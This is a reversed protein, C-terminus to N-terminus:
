AISKKIKKNKIKSLYKKWDILFFIFNACSFITVFKIDIPSLLLYSGVVGTIIISSFIRRHKWPEICVDKSYKSFYSYKRPYYFRFIAAILMNTAFVVFLIHLYHLDIKIIFKLFVYFLSGFIIIFNVGESPMKKSFIGLLVVTFIPISYCGTIEQMYGYLGQPAYFIIPAMLISFASIVLGSIKGMRVLDKESAHPRMNKKYIGVSFLTAASNLTSNFSSLIAGALVAAFLGKFVPPLIDRVLYPYAMDAHSIQDKYLYYAIIGPLIMIIPSFLKLLGAILVGRQAEKLDKAAFARQVLAQNTCWYFLNALIMGTFVASFPISQDNSGIANFHEPVEKTLTIFGNIVNGEGVKMLGLIPILLGGLILGIGNLCDSIAIARLGGFIAYISGIIGVSIVTILLTKFKSIGLIEPMDFIGNIALLGSYLIIPLLIFTYGFLFLYSTLNRTKEDYRNELFEPVTTVGLKLYKPLFFLAFIVLALGALTEWAMCVFGENFSISNLGIMQETSLNTLLLSGAVMGGTLSRGGLFYGDSTDHKDKKTLYYSTVAVLITFLLFTFIAVFDM